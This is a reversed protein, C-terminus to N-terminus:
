HRRRGPPSQRPLSTPIGETARAVPHSGAPVVLYSFGNLRPPIGRPHQAEQPPELRGAPTPMRCRILRIRHGRWDTFYRGAYEITAAAFYPSAALPEAAQRRALPVLQSNCDLLKAVRDLKEAAKEM